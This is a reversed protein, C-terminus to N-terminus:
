RGTRRWEPLEPFDTRISMRANARLRRKMANTVIVRKAPRRVAVKPAAVALTAINKGKSSTSMAAGERVLLRAANAWRGEREWRAVDIAGEELYLVPCDERGNIGVNDFTKWLLM